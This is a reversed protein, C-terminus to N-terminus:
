NSNYGDDYSDESEFYIGDFCKLTVNGGVTIEYGVPTGVEVTRDNDDYRFQQAEDYDDVTIIDKYNLKMAQQEM